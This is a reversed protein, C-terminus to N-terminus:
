EIPISTSRYGPFLDARVWLINKYFLSPQSKRIMYWKLWDQLSFSQWDVGAQVDFDQGRYSKVMDLQQDEETIVLAPDDVNILGDVLIFKQDRLEWAIAPQLKGLVVIDLGNPVGRVRGSVEEVTQKLLGVQSSEVGDNWFEMRTNDMNGVTRWASMFTLLGAMVMFGIAYGMGAIQISWGLIALIACVLLIVLGAGLYLLFNNTELNGQNMTGFVQWLFLFILIVFGAILWTYREEKQLQTLSNSIEIGSLVILPVAAWILLTLQRGPLLVVLIFTIVVILSLALLHFSKSRFGKFLGILGVFFTLPSYLPMALLSLQISTNGPKSWTSLFDVFSGTFTNLGNPLLLLVSGVTLVGMLVLLWFYPQFLFSKDKWPFDTPKTFLYAILASAGIILIAFWITPGSLLTLSLLIASTKYKQHIIAALTLIVLTLALMDGGSIRSAAVLSPEIAALVCIVVLAGNSLFKRFLIPTFLLGIGALAPILRALVDSSGGMYFLIATLILYLPNGSLATNPVGTVTQYAQLALTAEANDLSFSGLYIM